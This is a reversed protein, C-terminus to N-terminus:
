MLVIDAQLAGAAKITQLISIIDRPKVGLSNLGNVLDALSAGTELVRFKGNGEDVDINTRNLVETNGQSLPGPQSAQALENVRITLNAHSIAVDSIRVDEGMVIAGTKEDIVVRAVIDPRVRLNEIRQIAAVMTNGDYREPLAVDVTHNDRAVSVPANFAKNIAESMRLSTTFDPNRLILRTRKMDALEFGIEREVIAGSAIRGVTTHNKSVTGSDGEASFGGIILSGQAVAYTNGDAALLPTVLLMGGELSKADGLSSVTADIKSGQRAFPPLNATVMVAAVNKTKLTSQFDRSNLGMRELINILTQNTFPVSNASDGTGALGVVLGYGILVNNRVGEFDAIDKIRVSPAAALAPMSLTVAAALMLTSVFRKM